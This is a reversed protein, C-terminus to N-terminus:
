NSAKSGPKAALYGAAALFFFFFFLSFVFLMVRFPCRSYYDVRPKGPPEGEGETASNHADTGPSNKPMTPWSGLSELDLRNFTSMKWNQKTLTLYKRRYIGRFHNTIRRFDGVKVPEEKGSTPSCEGSRMPNGSDPQPHRSAPLHFRASEAASEPEQNGKETTCLSTHITGNQTGRIFTTVLTLPCPVCPACAMCHFGIFPSSPSFCSTAVSSVTSAWSQLFIVSRKLPIQPIFRTNTFFFASLDCCPFRHFSLVESFNGIAKSSDTSYVDYQYLLFSFSWLM